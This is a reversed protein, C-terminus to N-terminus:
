LTITLMALAVVVEEPMEVAPATIAVVAVAVLQWFLLRHLM